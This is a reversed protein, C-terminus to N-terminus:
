GSNSPYTGRANGTSLHSILMYVLSYNGCFYSGSSFLRRVRHYSLACKIKSPCNNKHSTYHHQLDHRQRQVAAPAAGGCCCCCGNGVCNGESEPTVVMELLSNLLALLEICTSPATSIVVSM